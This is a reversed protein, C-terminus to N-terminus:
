GLAMHQTALHDVIATMTVGENQKVDGRHHLAILSWDSLFCPSGSSGDQTNVDYSIYAPDSTRGSDTITGIAFKLPVAKPHQIIMLPDHEGFTTLSPTLAERGPSNALRVLAYDLAPATGNGSNSVRYPSWSVLWDAATDFTTDSEQVGADLKYDFRFKLHEPDLRKLIYDEVVHYNTLVLDKGILFGTGLPQDYGPTGALNEEIRCVARECRLMDARWSVVDNFPVRERVISEFRATTNLQLASIKQNLTEQARRLEENKPAMGVAVAVLSTTEWRAEAWQIVEAVRVPLKAPASYTDLGGNFAIQLAEEWDAPTPLAALLANRLEVRELGSLQPV